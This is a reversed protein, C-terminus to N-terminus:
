QNDLIYGIIVLILLSLSNKEIFGDILFEQERDMFMNEYEKFFSKKLM